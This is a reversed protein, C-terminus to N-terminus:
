CLRATPRPEANPPGLIATTTLPPQPRAVADVASSFENEEGDRRSFAAVTGAVVCLLAALGALALYQDDKRDCARTLERDVDGDPAPRFAEDTEATVIPGSCTRVDGQYSVTGASAALVAACLGLGIALVLSVIRVM